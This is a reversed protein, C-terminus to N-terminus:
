GNEAMNQSRKQYILRTAKTALAISTSAPTPTPTPAPSPQALVWACSMTSCCISTRLAAPQLVKYCPSPRPLGPCVSSLRRYPLAITFSDGALLLPAVVTSTGNPDAERAASSHMAKGNKKNKTYIAKFGEEGARLELPLKWQQAQRVISYLSNACVFVKDFRGRVRVTDRERERGEWGDFSDYIEWQRWKILERNSLSLSLSLSSM